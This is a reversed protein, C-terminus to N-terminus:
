KVRFLEEAVITVEEVLVENAGAKASSISVKSPWANHFDYRSVEAETYDKFIVAGSKRAVAVKGEYIDQHWKWLTMDSDKGRKLTLTPPKRNGPVRHIGGGVKSNFKYDIVDVESNLGSLEQFQAIETGDIEIAFHYNALADTELGPLGGPM